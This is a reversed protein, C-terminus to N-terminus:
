TWSLLTSHLFSLFFFDFWVYFNVGGLLGCVFYHKDPTVVCTCFIIHGSQCVHAKEDAIYKRYLECRQLCFEMFLLLWVKLRERWCLFGAEHQSTPMHLWFNKFSQVFSSRLLSCINRSMCYIFKGSAVLRQRRWSSWQIWYYLKVQYYRISKRQLIRWSCWSFLSFSCEM